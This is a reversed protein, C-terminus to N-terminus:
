KWETISILKIYNGRRPLKNTKGILTWDPHVEKTKYYDEKNNRVYRVPSVHMFGFKEKYTVDGYTVDQKVLAEQFFCSIRKFLEASGFHRNLMGCSDDYYFDKVETKNRFGDELFSTQYIKNGKRQQVTVRYIKNGNAKANMQMNHWEEALQVDTKEATQTM